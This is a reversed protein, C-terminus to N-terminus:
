PKLGGTICVNGQCRQGDARLFYGMNGRLTITGGDALAKTQTGQLSAAEGAPPAVVCANGVCLGCGAGPCTGCAAQAVEVCLNTWPGGGDTAGIAQCQQVPCPSGQPCTVPAYACQGANCGIANLCPRSPCDVLFTTSSCAAGADPTPAGVCQNSACTLGPGCIGCDLSVGCGADAAGCAAFLGACSNPTCCAGAFCVDSGVCAPACTGAAKKGCSLASAV